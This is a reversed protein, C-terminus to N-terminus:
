GSALEPKATSSRLVLRAGVRYLTRQDGGPQTQMRALVRAAALEALEVAGNDIITLAPHWHRFWPADEHCIVSLEAPIVVRLEHLAPLAGFASEHNAIYIATPRPTESLLQRVASAGFAPEYPGQLMLEPLYPVDADMLAHRYGALRERGSNSDPGGGLYAIRRHDLGLLHRMAQLAGEEDSALLREGPADESARVVHIVPTGAMELARLEVTNQGTGLIVLGDVQHEALTSIYRAETQPDANTVCLLVQYGRESLRRQLVEAIVHFTANVLNNMVLGVLRTRKTRLSRAARNTRYGLREAAASVKVKAEPSVAKSGSLVRSATSRSVGAAAAVAILTPAAGSISGLLETSMTRLKYVYSPFIRQGRNVKPARTRM